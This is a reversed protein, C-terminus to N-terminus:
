DSDEGRPRKAPAAQAREARSRTFLVRSRDARDVLRWSLALSRGRPADETFARAIASGLDLLGPSGGWPGAVVLSPHASPLQVLLDGPEPVQSVAGALDAQLEYEIELAALNTDLGHHEFVVSGGSLRFCGEMIEGRRSLADGRIGLGLSGPAEEDEGLLILQGLEIEALRRSRFRPSTAIMPTQPQYM